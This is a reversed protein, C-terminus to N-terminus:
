LANWHYEIGKFIECKVINCGCFKNYTVPVKSFIEFLSQLILFYQIYFYLKNNEAITICM